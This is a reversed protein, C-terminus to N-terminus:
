GPQGDRSAATKESLRMRWAFSGLVGFALLAGGVLLLANPAAEAAPTRDTISVLLPLSPVLAFAVNGGGPGSPSIGAERLSSPLAQVSAADIVLGKRAGEADLVVRGDLLNASFSGLDGTGAEGFVAALPVLVILQGRAVGGDTVTARLAISAEDVGPEPADPGAEGGFGAVARGSADQVRISKAGLLGAAEALRESGSRRDAETPAAFLARLRSDSALLATARRLAQVSREADAAIRQALLLRATDESRERRLRESRQASLAIWSPLGCAALLGLAFLALRVRAIWRGRRRPPEGGYSAKRSAEVNM